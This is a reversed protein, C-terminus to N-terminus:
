EVSQNHAVNSTPPIISKDNDVMEHYILTKIEPTHRPTFVRWQGKEYKKHKEGIACVFDPLPVSLNYNIILAIYGVPKAKPEPLPYAHFITVSQSNQKNKNM